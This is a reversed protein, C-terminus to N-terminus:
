IQSAFIVLGTRLPHKYKEIVEAICEIAEENSRFPASYGAEDGLVVNEKGFKEMLYDGLKRYFIKGLSFGLNFDDTEPIVQFEQFELKSEKNTAHSGGNIVNFIPKLNKTKPKLNSIQAIYQFLEKNEEKAKLRAFALSLSLILNGGLNSKVQGSGASPTRDLSILFNDFDEQLEIREGASAILIQPKIEEFKEVAKEPELVFAEHTGRSKGAPVSAIASFDASKLEAELTEKGRSDLIIKINTDIIKM